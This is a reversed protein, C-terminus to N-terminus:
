CRVWPFYLRTEFLHAIDPLRSFPLPYHTISVVGDAARALSNISQTKRKNAIAKKGM